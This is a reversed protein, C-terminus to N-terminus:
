SSDERLGTHVLAEVTAQYHQMGGKMRSDMHYWQPAGSVQITGYYPQMGRGRIRSM